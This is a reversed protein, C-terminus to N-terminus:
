LASVARQAVARTELLSVDNAIASGPEENAPETMYLDTVPSYRIPLAFQLAAGLLMGILAASVWIRRRRHVAEKLISLDIMAQPFGDYADPEVPGLTSSIGLGGPM